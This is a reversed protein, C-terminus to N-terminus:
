KTTAAVGTTATTAPPAYGVQYTTKKAFSKSTDDVWTKMADQKKQQLLQQRIATRVQGLPTTTSKKISTLAQIIHWGYQTKVPKSLENVKLAFAAKDFEAM